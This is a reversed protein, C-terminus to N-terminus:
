NEVQNTYKLSLHTDITFLEGFDRSQLNGDSLFEICDLCYWNHSHEMEIPRIGNNQRGYLGFGIRFRPLKADISQHLLKRWLALRVM